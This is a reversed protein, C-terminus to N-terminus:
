GPTGIPLNLMLARAYQTPPSGSALVTDHYRQLAFGDAWAAEADRRLDRHEQYGVFYTSLQASTLRARTWKGAAEGQEQFAQGMMLAMAEREGMGEVHVAQDLIANVIARLYWKLVVLRMLPDREFLGQDVMLREAYVAWGEVFVGSGLVSRLRSPHRNAHSLQVFHGPMAEHVTLNYLSRRNYERLLSAVQEETWDRPPPAIAYFTKQGVELPGPSDCYALAVGRQFEPMVIVEIGEPPLTVLGGDRVFATLTALSERAAEVIEDRGLTDRCAAELCARIVGRKDEPGPRAPIGAGGREERDLRAAIEYMEDTTRDLEDEARRRIEQRGLPSCLAFALRADFLRAGLRFDGAARPLLASELWRQHTLVATRAEEVAAALRAQDHSTLTGFHPKVMSDLISLIGLNQKAATEAHVKPVREPDLTERVEELLRPLQELRSAVSQLREGLPAFERAMLGYIAGGALGTYLTPNWAWEQLEELHWLDARLRHELMAADVQNPRSLRDRPIRGLCALCARCSAAQREVAERGVEDLQDDFRHDGLGTAYVPSRAALDGLYRRGLQEFEADM